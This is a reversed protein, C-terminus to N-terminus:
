FSISLKVSPPEALLSHDKGRLLDLEVFNLENLILPKEFNNLPSIQDVIPVKLIFRLSLPPFNLSVRKDPYQDHVRRLSM